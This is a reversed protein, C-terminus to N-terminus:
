DKLFNEPTIANVQLLIAMFVRSVGNQPVLISLVNEKVTQEFPVKIRCIIFYSTIKKLITNNNLSNM